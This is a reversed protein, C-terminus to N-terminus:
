AKHTESDEKGKPPKSIIRQNIGSWVRGKGKVKRSGDNRELWRIHFVSPCKGRFLNKLDKNRKCFPAIPSTFSYFATSTLGISAVFSISILL